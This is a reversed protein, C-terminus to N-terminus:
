ADLTLVGERLLDDATRAFEELQMRGIRRANESQIKGHAFQVSRDASRELIGRNVLKNVARRATERNLGTVEAIKTITCGRGKLSVPNANEVGSGDVKALLDGTIVVVAMLILAEDHSGSVQRWAALVRLRKRILRHAAVCSKAAAKEHDITIRM